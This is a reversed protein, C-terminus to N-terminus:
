RLPYFTGKNQSFNDSPKKNWCFYLWFKLQGLLKNLKKMFYFVYKENEGTVKNIPIDQTYQRDGKHYFVSQEWNIDQDSDVEAPRGSRPADNLSFESSKVCETLWLVKEM